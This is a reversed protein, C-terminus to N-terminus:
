LEQVLGGHGSKNQGLASIRGLKHLPGPSKPGLVLFRASSRRLHGGSRRLSGFHHWLARLRIGGIGQIMNLAILYDRDTWSVDIGEEIMTMTPTM